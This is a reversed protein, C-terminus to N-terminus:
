QQLVVVSLSSGAAQVPFIQNLCHVMLDQHRPLLLGELSAELYIGGRKLCWEPRDANPQEHGGVGCSFDGSINREPQSLLFSQAVLPFSCTVNNRWHSMGQSEKPM